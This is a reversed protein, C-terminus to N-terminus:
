SSLRATTTTGTMIAAGTAIPIGTAAAITATM